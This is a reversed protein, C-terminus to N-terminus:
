SATKTVSKESGLLVRLEDLTRTNLVDNRCLWGRRAQDVGHRLNGFDLRSHADSDISVLVGEDKAMQCYTDALDLRDPQANLELHCGRTRAKRIVREMDIDCPERQGILRGTPHALISLCPHDMARLVRETQQVRALDFHSHVAGVVIDLRELLDDPLDLQGDELIDVEIGKLLVIGELTRNVRDIEDIQEALRKADLGHAVTLRSSHDTIALYSLGRDRAALAMDRLTDRGDSAKTHAHLDGRLDSLEILTPLRNAAAAQLEGRNERLEPTIWPLGICAYVSAETDGAIREEGRFVGYENIKLGREQAIRRMAISHAKSGTFYVLAARYNAPAVVRLDVQMGNRLVVSSRTDGSSLVETVDEYHVFRQTVASANRAAILIDLDGVTEARRRFSGAVIAEEVGQVAKLYALLPRAYQEALAIRFRRSKKLRAEIGAVIHAETKEGFGPLGRIRGEKAARLLQEITDVHLADHIARVRKPGLGQIQLLESVAAPMERHLTELLACKGTTSIERLKGALDDGIGRITKLNEDHRVMELISRGLESVSRAANRYARVRFPNAGQIELLDAIEGFITAIDTNQLPM